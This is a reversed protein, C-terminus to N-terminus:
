KGLSDLELRVTSFVDSWNGSENQRFLRVESYWPSDDLDLMWRWDPIVPTLIWTPVGLAGSFHVTSNDISIVLDLVSIQAAFNDLDTLPDADEWDHIHVGMDQEFQKIDAACDGYQLNVFHADSQIVTKWLKPEVTRSIKMNDKSGGRWSIGIKLGEGLSSFRKRWKEQLVLDPKLLSKRVPFQELDTRFYKPLSGIQVQFDINRFDQLWDLNKSERKGQISMEPFSRSFLPVLRSDCEVIVQKPNKDILDPFCSAFMVEDGIGQEARVLIVKDELSEGNWKAIEVPVQECTKEAMMRWEHQQWGEEFNGLLLMILSLDSHAQAYDPKLQIAMKFSSMADEFKRLQQFVVGRNYYAQAFDPKLQIMRNCIQVAEQSRGQETLVGALINHVVLANPYMHLLENCSREVKNFQGSNLMNILVNIQGQSPSLNNVSVAKNPPLSKQLKRLAKRAVPHQPQHSLIANYLQMAEAFKGQKSAKKARSLVQEITVPQSQPM